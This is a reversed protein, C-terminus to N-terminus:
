GFVVWTVLVLFGILMAFAYHYVYGTQLRAVRGATLHTVLAAGNPGLGDIIKEDWFKWLYQGLRKAPRVFACWSEPSLRKVLTAEIRVTSGGERTRTGDLRAPIVKTDNIVLADGPRLFRPRDGIHADELDPTDGPRVVLLRAAARPEAPRLAILEPPLEFDFADVRM